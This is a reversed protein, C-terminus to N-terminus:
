FGGATGLWLLGPITAGWMVVLCIDAVMAGRTLKPFGGRKPAPPFPWKGPAQSPQNRM